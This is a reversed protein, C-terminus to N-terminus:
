RANMKGPTRERRRSMEIVGGHFGRAARLFFKRLLSL